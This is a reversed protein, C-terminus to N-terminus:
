GGYRIAETKRPCLVAVARVLETEARSDEFILQCTWELGAFVDTLPYNYKRGYFELWSGSDLGNKLNRGPPM